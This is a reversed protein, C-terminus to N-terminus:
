GPSRSSSWQIAATARVPEAMIRRSYFWRIREFRICWGQQTLLIADAIKLVILLLTAAKVVSHRGFSPQLWWLVPVAAGVILAEFWRDLPIGDLGSIGHSPWLLGAALLAIWM